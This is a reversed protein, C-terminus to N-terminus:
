SLWDKTPEGRNIKQAEVYADYMAYFWIFLPVILVPLCCLAGFGLTVAAGIGYILGMGFWLVWNGLTLLIGKKVQGNYIQGLGIFGIVFFGLFSLILSLFPEKKAPTAPAVPPAVPPVVPAAPPVPAAVPQVPPTAPPEPPVVASPQKAMQDVCSKCVIKGNMEVACNSCVSKGCNTCTGVADVDPHVYCKM